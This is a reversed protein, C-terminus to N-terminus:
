TAKNSAKKFLKIGVFGVVMATAIPWAAALIDDVFLAIADVASQADTPLAANASTSVMVAGSVIAANTKTMLGKVKKLM